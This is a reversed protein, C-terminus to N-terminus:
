KRILIGCFLKTTKQYKGNENESPYVVFYNQQKEANVMKMKQHTYWLINKNENESSYVVFYNQQKKINVMKM